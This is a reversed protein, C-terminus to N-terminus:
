NQDHNAVLRMQEGPPLVQGSLGPFRDLYTKAILAARDDANVLKEFTRVGDGVVVPFVKETVALIEGREQGPFRYYFVGIEKQESAYCQLVVDSCVRALYREAEAPTSVLKFGAGRQGINPKLVCPYKISHECCITEFMRCRSSLDGAPILYADARHDPAVRMLAQLVDIKSEGVIGGNRFSPNAITPLSFGRYRLGLWSCM